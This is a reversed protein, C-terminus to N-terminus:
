KQINAYGYLMDVRINTDRKGVVNEVWDLKGAGGCKKCNIYIREYKDIDDYFKKWNGIGHCENCLVEGLKLKM